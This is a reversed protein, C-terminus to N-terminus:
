LCLADLDLYTLRYHTVPQLAPDAILARIEEKYSQRFGSRVLGALEREESTAISLRLADPYHKRAAVQGAIGLVEAAHEGLRAPGYDAVRVESGALVLLFYGVAEGHWTLVFSMPQRLAPCREFHLFLEPTRETIAGSPGPVPWLDRPIEQPSIEGFGYDPPLRLLPLVARYTNRVMRAPTKWDLPAERMASSVARLPRSLFYVEGAVQYSLAPGRAARRRLHDGLAPLIRRTASSGGISFLAASHECSDRLVQLGAGAHTSDAAWDILHFADFSGTETLIRMPWRCGHAVIRERGRLVYSRGANTLPHPDWYKWQQFGPDIAIAGDELGLARQMLDAIEPRDAPTSIRAEAAM